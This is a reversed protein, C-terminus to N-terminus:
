KMEHPPLIDLLEVVFILTSYPKIASGQPSQAGYALNEPIFVRYKSGVSMLQLAETWGPIVQGVGFEAPENRQYSSDFVTGDILTGTYHVKIRDTLTPKKGNGEKLVVYQLGSPLTKVSDKKANAELFSKNQAIYEKYQKKMQQQQFESFYKNLFNQIVMSSVPLTDGKTAQRIGSVFADANFLSDIKAQKIGNGYTLGLYYSVTDEKSKLKVSAYKKNQSCASVIFLSILSFVLLIRMSKM